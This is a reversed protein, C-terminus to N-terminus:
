GLIDYYEDDGKCYGSTESSLVVSLSL